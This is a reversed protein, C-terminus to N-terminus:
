RAEDLDFRIATKGVRIEDGLNLKATAIRKGNLFTGNTSALDRIMVQDRGFVEILAHKRSVDTDKLNLDANVRGIVASGKVMPFRLGQDMGKTVTLTFVVQMQGQPRPAAAPSPAPAPSSYDYPAPAGGPNTPPFSGLDYGSQVKRTENGADFDDYIRRGAPIQLGHMPPNAEVAPERPTAFVPPAPPAVPYAIRVTESPINAQQAGLPFPLPQYAPPNPQRAPEAPRLGDRVEGYQFIFTSFGVQVEDLNRLIAEKVRQRNLFTGNTSGLDILYFNGNIYEICFHRGSVKADGLIIDSQKRGIITRVTQLTYTKGKDIGETVSLTASLHRPLLDM